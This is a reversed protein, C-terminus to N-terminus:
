EEEHSLSIEEHVEAHWIPIPPMVQDILQKLLYMLVIGIPISLLIMGTSPEPTASPDVDSFFLASFVLGNNVMHIWICPWISQTRYYLWGIVIGLLMTHPFQAPNMHMLAFLFASYLIAKQPQYKRLFGDLIIGRFISEEFFAAALVITLFHFINLDGQLFDLQEKFMEPIPILQAIPVSIMAMIPIAFLSLIYVAIPVSRSKFLPQSHDLARQNKSKQIIAFILAVSMALAYMVFIGLGTKGLLLVVPSAVFQGVLLMGFIAWAQPASPYPSRNYSENLPDSIM